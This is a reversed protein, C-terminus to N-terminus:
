GAHRQEPRTVHDDGGPVTRQFRRLVEEQAEPPLTTLLQMVAEIHPDSAYTETPMSPALAEMERLAQAADERGAGTLQDASVGVVQAMRALTDAPAKVPIQEGSVSQYGSVIQRWRADSIGARKAASRASLRAVKLATRILAAEPPPEPRTSKAM